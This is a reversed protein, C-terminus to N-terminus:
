ALDAPLTRTLDDAKTQQFGWLAFIDFVVGLTKSTRLRFVVRHARRDPLSLGGPPVVRAPPDRSEDTPGPFPEEGRHVVIQVREVRHKSQLLERFRDCLEAIHGGGLPARDDVQVPLNTLDEAQRAAQVIAGRTWSHGTRFCP